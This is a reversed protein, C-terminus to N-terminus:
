KKITYNCILILAHVNNKLTAVDAHPVEVRWIATQENSTVLVDADASRGKLSGVSIPSADWELPGQTRPPFIKVFEPFEFAAADASPMALVSVKDVTL